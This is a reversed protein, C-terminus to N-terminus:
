CTRAATAGTASTASTSSSAAGCRCSAASGTPSTSTARARGRRDRRRQQVARAQERASRVPAGRRVPTAIARRSCARCRSSCTGARTWTSGTWAGPPSRSPTTRAGGRRRPRALRFSQRYAGDPDTVVVRMTGREALYLRGNRHVLQDPRSTTSRRRSAPSGFRTILEGRFDCRLYARMGDLSSLVVIDGDDLVAVRTVFGSRATTASGTSRWGPPTSSGCSGRASSSRRAALASRARHEAVDAPRDRDADALDHEYRRRGVAAAARGAVAASAAPRPRPAATLALAVALALM